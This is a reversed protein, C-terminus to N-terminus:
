GLPRCSLNLLRLLEGLITLQGDLGDDDEAKKKQKGKKSLGLKAELWAIEDDEEKEKQNLKVGRLKVIKRNTIDGNEGSTDKQQQREQQDVLRELATKTAKPKAAPTEANAFSVRKEKTDLRPKKATPHSDDQQAPRKGKGKVDQPQPVRTSTSPATHAKHQKKELRANKRSEKRSLM